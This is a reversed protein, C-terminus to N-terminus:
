SIFSQASGSISVAGCSNEGVLAALPALTVGAAVLANRVCLTRANAVPTGGYVRLSRVPLPVLTGDISEVTGTTAMQVARRATLDFGPVYAGPEGFPVLALDPTYGRDPFGEAAVPLGADAACRSLMSGSPALVTLGEAYQLVACVVAIAERESVAALDGLIGSPRVFCIRTGVAQAIDDAMVIQHLVEATVEQLTYGDLPGASGPLDVRLGVSVGADLAAACHRQVTVPEGVPLSVSTVLGVLRRDVDRPDGHCEGLDANLDITATM